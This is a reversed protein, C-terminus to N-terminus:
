KVPTFRDSRLAWYQRRNLASTESWHFNEEVGWAPKWRRLV